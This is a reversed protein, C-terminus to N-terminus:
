PAEALRGNHLRFVCDVQASKLPLRSDHCAMIVIAEQKKMDILLEMVTEAGAKDQHATPEDVVLIHPQPALARALSVRQLEGGSLCHATEGALAEIQLDELRQMSLKRIASLSRGGPIMPLMVNELVTLDNFLHPHQFVIGVQGRWRDRFVTNWRSVPEGDALLNGETPRQLGALIHLLSSKGAGVAGTVVGLEGATLTLNIGRLISKESGNAATRHLGVEQCALSTTLNAM